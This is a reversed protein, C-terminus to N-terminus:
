VLSYGRIKKVKTGFIKKEKSNMEKVKVEIKMGADKGVTDKIIKILDSKIPVNLFPVALIVVVKENKITVGRIIALDFLSENLEPHIAKKLIKKVEKVSVM